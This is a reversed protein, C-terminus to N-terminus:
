YTSVFVRAKGDADLVIVTYRDYETEPMEAAAQGSIAAVIAPVTNSHGVVLATSGAPLARLDRALDPGYTAANDADVPRVTVAVGAQAAAPAASLQTRRYQTAYAADLGAGALRRALSQARAEGAPTLLPDRPDDTAKEAHRVVVVVTADPPTAAPAAPLALAFLLTWTLM